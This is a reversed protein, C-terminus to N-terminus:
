LPLALRGDDAQNRELWGVVLAATDLLEAADMDRGCQEPRLAVIRLAVVVLLWVVVGAAIRGSVSRRWPMLVVRCGDAADVDVGGVDTVRPTRRMAMAGFVGLVAVVGAIM